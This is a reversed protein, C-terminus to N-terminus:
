GRLRDIIVPIAAPVPTELGVAHKLAKVPEIAKLMSRHDSKLVVVDAVGCLIASDCPVAGDGVEDLTGNSGCKWAEARERGIVRRVFESDLASMLGSRGCAGVEGVICTTAVHTPPARGNLDNLFPSGPCLDLGAEGDGDVMFGLMQSLNKDESELWRVFQDRVEMAGRLPALPAGAHPTGIMVLRRVAPLSENGRGDGAYYEARTLVDRALLGGMSHGVVDVTRVGHSKLDSLAEALLDASQAIPQDNPYNFRMVVHGAGSLAPALDDWITGGEDLGHVLLVVCGPLPMDETPRGWPSASGPCGKAYLFLGITQDHAHRAKVLAEDFRQTVASAAEAKLHDIAENSLNERLWRRAADAATSTEALLRDAAAVPPSLSESSDVAEGALCTAALWGVAANTLMWRM